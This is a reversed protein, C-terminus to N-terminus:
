YRSPETIELVVPASIDGFWGTAENCVTQITLSYIGYLNAPPTITATGTNSYIQSFTGGNPYNISIKVKGSLASYTIQFDSGSVQGSFANIGVCRETYNYVESCRRGDAYIPTLGVIYRGDDLNSITYPAGPLVSPITIWIPTPTNDIRAYRLVNDIASPHTFTVILNLKNDIPSHEVTSVNFVSYPECAHGGACAAVAACFADMFNVDYIGMQLIRTGLEVPYIRACAGAKSGLIYDNEQMIADSVPFINKIANCNIGTLTMIYDITTCGKALLEVIFTTLLTGSPVVTTKPTNTAPDIWCITYEASTVIQSDDLACLYDIIAQIIQNATLPLFGTCDKTLVAPVKGNGVNYVLQGLNFGNASTKIKVSGNGLDLVVFTGIGLTNLYTQLPTLNAENFAFPYSNNVGNVEIYNLFVTAVDKLGTLKWEYDCAGNDIVCKGDVTIQFGNQIVLSNFLNILYNNAATTNYIDEALTTLNVKLCVNTNTGTTTPVLIIASSNSDVCQGFTYSKDKLNLVVNGGTVEFGGVIDGGQNNVSFLLGDLLASQSGIGTNGNVCDCTFGGIEKIEEVLAPLDIGCGPNAKAIFARLLMPTVINLINQAAMVDDCKGNKIEDELGKIACALPCLDINCQVDFTIQAVYRIVVFVNNGLDYTWIQYETASYGKGNYTFPIVADTNFSTIVFPAPIVGTSDRPYDVALYSSSLMGTIGKYTKSTNDQLYLTASNCLIEVSLAIQGYTNTSKKTNGVPRCIGGLKDLDYINGDSDKVQFEVKYSDGSWEIQRFPMPWQATIQEITWVGTIWPTTFDSQFIPTGTPSYINLVWVLNNLTPIPSVNQNAVSQNELTILPTTGSIDFTVKVELIGLDPSNTIIM